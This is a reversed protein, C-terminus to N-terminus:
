VIVYIEYPSAAADGKLFFYENTIPGRIDHRGGGPPLTIFHGDDQYAFYLTKTADPNVIGFTQPHGFGMPVTAPVLSPNFYIREVTTGVTGSSNRATGAIM